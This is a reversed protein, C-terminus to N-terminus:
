CRRTRDSNCSHLPPTVEARTFSKASRCVERTAEILSKEAPAINRLYFSMVRRAATTCNQFDAAEQLVSNDRRPLSGTGQRRM